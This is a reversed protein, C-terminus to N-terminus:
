VAWLKAITEKTKQEYIDILKKASEVVCPCARSRNKRRNAFNPVVGVLVQRASDIHRKTDTNM